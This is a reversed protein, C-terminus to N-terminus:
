SISRINLVGAIIQHALNLAETTTMSISSDLDDTLCWVTFPHDTDGSTDIHLELSVIGAEGPIKHVTITDTPTPMNPELTYIM